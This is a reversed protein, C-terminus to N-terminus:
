GGRAQKGFEALYGLAGIRGSWCAATYIEIPAEPSSFLVVFYIDASVPQQTCGAGIAKGRV